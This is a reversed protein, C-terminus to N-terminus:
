LDHCKVQISFAIKLYISLTEFIDNKIYEVQILELPAGQHNLYYSSHWKVIMQLSLM